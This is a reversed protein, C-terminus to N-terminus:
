FVTKDDQIDTFNVKYEQVEKAFSDKVLIGDDLIEFYKSNRGNKQKLINM